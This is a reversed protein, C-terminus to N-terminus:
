SDDIDAAEMDAYHLHKLSGFQKCLLIGELAVDQLRQEGADRESNVISFDSEATAAAPLPCALGGALELLASFREHEGETM